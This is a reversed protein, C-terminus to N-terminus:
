LDCAGSEAVQKINEYFSGNLFAKKSANVEFFANSLLKESRHL